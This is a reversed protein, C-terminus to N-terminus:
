LSMARRTTPGKKVGYAYWRLALDAQGKLPQNRRDANMSYISLSWRPRGRLSRSRPTTPNTAALPCLHRRRRRRAIRALARSRRRRRASAREEERATEGESSCCSNSSSREAFPLLPQEGERGRGGTAQRGSEPTIQHRSAFHSQARAARPLSPSEKEEHSRFFRSPPSHRRTM